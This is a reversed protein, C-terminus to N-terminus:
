QCSQALSVYTQGLDTLTGADPDALLANPIATANFWSYKMVHPNSELWPVAAQMYAKQQAPTDSNPCSFETLWIPKGFQVFGELGADNGDIYAQLSPLDCNYWHVAVYDVKCNTCAAFFDKLWTYPDSVSPDSCASSTPAGSAADCFTVAPSVIPIGLASAKAEVMPWYGAAQSPTMNSQGVIMPENFGLLYSSSSPITGSLSGSGWLMPVFDIPGANAPPSTGWNYWWVIGPNTATPSFSATPPANSAIGRKCPKAGAEASSAAEATASSDGTSGGSGDTIPEGGGDTGPQGSGDTGPEAGGDTGPEGGSTTTADPSSGSDDSTGGGTDSPGGGAADNGSAAHTGSSGCAALALLLALSAPRM